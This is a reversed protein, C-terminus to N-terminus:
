RELVLKKKAIINPTKAVKEQEQPKPLAFAYLDKLHAKIKYIVHYVDSNMREIEGNAPEEGYIEKFADMTEQIPEEENSTLGDLISLATKIKTAKKDDSSQMEKVIDKACAVAKEGTENLIRIDRRRLTSALEKSKKDAEEAKKQTSELEGEAKRQTQTTISELTDMDNEDQVTYDIWRRNVLGALIENLEEIDVITDEAECKCAESYAAFLEKKKDSAAITNLFDDIQEALAHRKAIIKKSPAIRDPEMILEQIRRIPSKEAKLELKRLENYRRIISNMEEHIRTMTRSNDNKAFTKLNEAKKAVEQVKERQADADKRAEIYGDLRQLAEADKTLRIFDAAKRQDVTIVGNEDKGFLTSGFFNRYFIGRNLANYCYEVLSNYQANNSDIHDPFFTELIGEKDGLDELCAQLEEKRDKAKSIQKKLREIKKVTDEKQKAYDVKSLKQKFSQFVGKIFGPKVLKKQLSVIEAEKEAIYNNIANKGTIIENRLSNNESVLTCMERLMAMNNQFIIAEKKKNIEDKYASASKAYLEKIDEAHKTVIGM